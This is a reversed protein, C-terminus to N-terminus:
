WPNVARGLGGGWSCFKCWLTTSVHSGVSLNNEQIIGQRHRKKDCLNKFVNAWLILMLFKDWYVKLCSFYCWTLNLLLDPMENFIVRFTKLHRITDRTECFNQYVKAAASNKNIKTAVRQIQSNEKTSPTFIKRHGGPLFPVDKKRCVWSCM